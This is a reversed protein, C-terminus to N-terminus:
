AIVPVDLRFLYQVTWSWEADGVRIPFDTQYQSILFSGNNLQPILPPKVTPHGGFKQMVFDVLDAAIDKADRPDNARQKALVRFEWPIDRIEHNEGISHGSMRATTTGPSQQFVCYPFPQKPSAETDSLASFVAIDAPNWLKTFEAEIGVANWVAMIARHLDASAIAAM